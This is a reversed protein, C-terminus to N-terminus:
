EKHTSTLSGCHRKDDSYRNPYIGRYAQPLLYSSQMIESAYGSREIIRFSFGTLFTLITMDPSRGTERSKRSQSFCGSYSSPNFCIPSPPQKSSQCQRFWIVTGVSCAAQSGKRAYANCWRANIELSSLSNHFTEPDRTRTSWLPCPLVGHLFKQISVTRATPFM